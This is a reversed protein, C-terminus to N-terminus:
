RGESCGWSYYMIFLMGNWCQSSYMIEDVYLHPLLPVSPKYAHPAPARWTPDTSGSSVSSLGLQGSVPGLSLALKERRCLGWGQGVGCM